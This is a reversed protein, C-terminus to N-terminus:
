LESKLSKPEALAGGQAPLHEQKKKTGKSCRTYVEMGTAM